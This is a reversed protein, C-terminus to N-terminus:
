ARQLHGVVDALARFGVDLARVVDELHRRVDLRARRRKRHLPDEPERFRDAAADPHLERHEELALRERLLTPSTTLSPRSM